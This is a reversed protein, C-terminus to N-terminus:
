FYLEIFKIMLCVKRGIQVVVEQGETYFYLQIGNKNGYEIYLINTEKFKM